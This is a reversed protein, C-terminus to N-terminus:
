TWAAAADGSAAQVALPSAVLTRTELEIRIDGVELVQGPAWPGDMTLEGAIKTGCLSNLDHVIVEDETVQLRCHIPSVTGHGLRM